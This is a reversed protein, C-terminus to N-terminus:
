AVAWCAACAGLTCCVVVRMVLDTVAICAGTGLTSGVGSRGAISVRGAGLTRTGVGVGDGRSVVVIRSRDLRRVGVGNGVSPGALRVRPALAAADAAAVAAVAAAVAAAADALAAMAAALGAALVRLRRTDPSGWGVSTVVRRALVRGSSRAIAACCRRQLLFRLLLFTRFMDFRIARISSSTYWAIATM